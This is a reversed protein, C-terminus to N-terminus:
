KKFSSCYLRAHRPIKFVVMVRDATILIWDVSNRVVGLATQVLSFTNQLLFSLFFECQIIFGVIGESWM